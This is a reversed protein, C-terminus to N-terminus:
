IGTPRSEGCRDLGARPAVWGGICRTGPRELPYIAAPAYRQGGGELASTHFLLAIGRGVRQAMFPM